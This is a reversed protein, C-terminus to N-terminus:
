RRRRFMAATLACGLAAAHGDRFVGVAPEVLEGGEREGVASFGDVGVPGVAQEGGDRWRGLGWDVIGKRIRGRPRVETFDM